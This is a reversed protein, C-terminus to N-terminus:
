LDVILGINFVDGAGDSIGIDYFPYLTFNKHLWILAGIEIYEQSDNNDFSNIPSGGVIGVYTNLWPTTALELNVSYNTSIDNTGETLNLQYNGNTTLNGYITKDFLINMSPIFLRYDKDITLNAAVIASLAPIFKTEKNLYAKIGLTTVDSTSRLLPNKTIQSNWTMQAEFNKQFGYRLTSTLSQQTLDGVKLAGYYTDIQASGKGITPVEGNDVPMVQAHTESSFCVLIM